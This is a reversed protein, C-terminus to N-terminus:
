PEEIFKWCEMDKRYSIYSIHKDICQIKEWCDKFGFVPCRFQWIKEPKWTKGLRWAALGKKGANESLKPLFSGCCCLDWYWFSPCPRPLWCIQGWIKWHNTADQIMKSSMKSWYNLIMKSDDHFLDDLSFCGCMQLGLTCCDRSRRLHCRLEFFFIRFVESDRAGRLIWYIWYILHTKYIRFVEPFFFSKTNSRDHKLMTDLPLPINKAPIAPVLGIGVMFVWGVGLRIWPNLPFIQWFAKWTEHEFVHGALFFLSM